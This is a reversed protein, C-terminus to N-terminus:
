LFRRAMSAIKDIRGKPLSYVMRRTLRFHAEWKKKSKLDVLMKCYKLWCGVLPTHSEGVNIKRWQSAMIGEGGM